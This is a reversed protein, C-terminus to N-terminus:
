RKKKSLHHMRGCIEECRETAKALFYNRCVLELTKDLGFHTSLAGSYKEQIINDRMSCKPICLQGGKCFLGEQILFDAFEHNYRDDLNTCAEYIEKFNVDGVYMDKLNSIGITEM